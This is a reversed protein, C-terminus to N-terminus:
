EKTVHARECLAIAARHLLSKVLNHISGIRRRRRVAALARLRRGLSQIFKRWWAHRFDFEIDPLFLAATAVFTMILLEMAHTHVNPKSAIRM